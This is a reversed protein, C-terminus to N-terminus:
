KTEVILWDIRLDSAVVEDTEITFSKNEGDSNIEIVGVKVPQDPTVFVKATETVAKTKVVISKGDTKEAIEADQEVCKNDEENLEYAARCIVAEGITEGAANVAFKDASIEGAVEIDNAFKVVGDELVIGLTTKMYDDVEVAIKSQMETQLATVDARLEEVVVALSTIQTNHSAFDSNLNSLQTDYDAFKEDSNNELELKAAAVMANVQDEVDMEAIRKATEEEVQEVTLSKNKRSILIQINGNKGDFNQLAVGVTSEGADAKRMYGAKGAATLSDGIAIKGNEDTVKGSVQGLMGIIKYNKDSERGDANNGVISPTSSVIGMIENDGSNKCRKVANEKEGDICVAEGSQLDMDNTYFYEAYDAGQVTQNKAYVTGDGRVRFQVDDTGGAAAIAAIFDFGTGAAADATIILGGGNNSETTSSGAFATNDLHLLLGQATAVAGENNVVHLTATPTSTMIGVAQSDTTLGGSGNSTGYITLVSSGDLMASYSEVTSSVASVVSMDVWQVVGADAEFSQAGSQLANVYVTGDYAIKMAETLGNAGTQFLMDAGSATTTSSTTRLILDDTAATGGVLTQGGNIGTRYIYQTHPNGTTLGGFNNHTLNGETIDISVGAGIVAGTGTGGITIKNSGATLNGKTFEAEKGDLQTQINSSVSNLYGLETNSINTNLSDIGTIAGGTVTLNGLSHASGSSATLAGSMGLTTVGSLAGGIGLTTINSVAGGTITVAGITQASTSTASIVGSLTLNGGIIAGSGMDLTDGATTPSLTTGVRSFVGTPTNALYYAKTVADQPNVPDALNSIVVGGANITGAFTTAGNLAIAGSFIAEDDFYSKGNVELEGSVLLDDSDTMSHSTSGDGITLISSGHLSHIYVNDWGKAVSGLDYTDDADPITDLLYTTGEVTLDDEVILDGALTGGTVDLRDEIDQSLSKKLSKNTRSIAKDLTDKTETITETLKENSGGISEKLNKYTNTLASKVSAIRQGNAANEMGDGKGGAIFVYFIDSLFGTMPAYAQPYTIMSSTFLFVFLFFVSYLTKKFLDHISGLYTGKSKQYVRTFFIVFSIAVISVCVYSLVIFYNELSFLQGFKKFSELIPAFSKPSYLIYFLLTILLLYLAELLAKRVIADKNQPNKEYKMIAAIIVVILLIFPLFTLAFDVIEKFLDSALFKVFALLAVAGALYYYVIKYKNESLM